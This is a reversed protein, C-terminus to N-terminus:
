FGWSLGLEAYRVREHFFQGEWSFGQHYDVYIRVKRGVGQLKSWEYGLKYTQDLDWGHAQWNQLDVALFPTGYLKHYVLKRGFMRLEMGYEIYFQKMPFSKDSHLIFGPGGYVRLNSNVQYSAFFDVAEFSPNKRKALWEPHNVLFEDGLHSSIHYPRLRFSWRDAAYTLPFGVFYDTNMLECSENNPFHGNFNFVAWIGAEVGIQLDGKWRFVNRWRFIPFDDGLSVAISRTGMVEDFARLNVSNVPQRPDAILPQFLVTSQPFWIGDVQPHEEFKAVARKQKETLEKQVKVTKVNPVGKVFSIISNAMLDNNPLNALYVTDGEVYVMVRFEYFHADVLAQIYGELYEDSGGESHGIPLADALLREDDVNAAMLMVPTLSLLIFTLKM